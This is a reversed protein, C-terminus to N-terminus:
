ARLRSPARRSAAGRGTRLTGAASRVREAVEVIAPLPDKWSWVLHFDARIADATAAGAWGLAARWGIRGSATERCLGGLDGYSWVYRLGVEGTPPATCPGGGHLTILTKGLGLGAATPIAHNGAIRPNVELFTSQGTAPDVIFQACGVGTYGLERVFAQTDDLLAPTPAVTRGSVALGTGDARNTRSSVTELHSLLRGERAAFYVNHRPGEVRSQVIVRDHGEPWHPLQACLAAADDCVIAKCTGFRLGAAAPRVIAPFGVTTAASLIDDGRVLIRFPAQRVGGAEAALLSRCKDLCLEIAEETAMVYASPRKLRHRFRSVLLLMDESVPLVYEIDDRCSVLADLERFFGSSDADPDTHHWLAGVHRSHAFGREGQETVGVIPFYGLERMEACLPITPRYNGLLLVSKSGSGAM